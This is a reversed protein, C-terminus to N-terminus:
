VAQSAQTHSAQLPLPITYKSKLRCICFCIGCILVFFVFPSLISPVMVVPELYMPLPNHLVSQIDSKNLFGLLKLKESYVTLNTFSLNFAPIIPTLTSSLNSALTLHQRNPFTILKNARVECHDSVSYYGHVQVYSPRTKCSLAIETSRPFYFYQNALLHVHYVSSPNSHTFHCHKIAEKPKSQILSLDCPAESAPLFVFHFAACIYFNYFSSKCQSLVDLSSRAVHSSDSSVLLLDHDLDVQLLTDNVMFPFPLLRWLSFQDQSKMPITIIISIHTLFSQILPYYFEIERMTFLPILHLDHIATNVADQLHNVPLMESDVRGLAANNLDRIVVKFNDLLVSVSYEIEELRESILLLETVFPVSQVLSNVNAILSNTTNTISDISSAVMSIAKYSKSILRGNIKASLTLSHMRKGMEEIDGSTATGFLDKAVLGVFNFLGRKPRAKMNKMIDKQGSPFLPHSLLTERLRKSRQLQLTIIDILGQKPARGKLTELASHLSDLNSYVQNLDEGAHFLPDLDYRVTIADEVLWLEGMPAVLTGPQLVESAWSGYFGSLCLLISIFM